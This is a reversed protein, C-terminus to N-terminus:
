RGVDGGRAGRRDEYTLCIRDQDFGAEKMLVVLDMLDHFAVGYEARLFIHQAQGDITEGADMGAVRRLSFILDSHETFTNGIAIRGSKWMTIHIPPLRSAPGLVTGSDDSMLRYVCLPAPFITRAHVPFISGALFAALLVFAIVARVESRHILILTM